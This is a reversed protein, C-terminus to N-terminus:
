SKSYYQWHGKHNDKEFVIIGKDGKKPLTKLGHFMLVFGENISKDVVVILNKDASEVVVSRKEGYKVTKEEM